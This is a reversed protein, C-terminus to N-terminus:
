GRGGRGLGGVVDHVGRGGHSALGDVWGRSVIRREGQESGIM